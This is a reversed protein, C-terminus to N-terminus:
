EKEVLVKELKVALVALGPTVPMAGIAQRLAAELKEIRRELRRVHADDSGFVQIPDSM